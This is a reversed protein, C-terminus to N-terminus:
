RLVRHAARAAALGTQWAGNITGFYDLSCAEGAFFVREDLPESLRARLHACGPRAASYAGLAWPDSAWATEVTRRVDARFASGYMHTLEELAFAALAGTEELERALGDGFYALLVDQELPRTQYSATRASRDTGITFISEEPPLAGPTMEFYVKNAVGLPVGHCAELLQPARPTLRLRETALLPTPVTVIVAAARLEGRTTVVRVPNGSWDIESVAADLRVDLDRAAHAILDGLGGLVYWNRDSDAYRDYDVTSVQTSDVGMLWGMVADFTPRHRDNPVVDSVAIDRGARVAAAILEENRQFAALWATRYEPSTEVGAVRRQWMPSRQRVTFGHERAYATWPNVDASHLWACGMDLPVGLRSRDTWARGGVRTRAELLVPHLGLRRLEHAAAIGAAGAGVIVLPSDGNEASRFVPVTGMETANEASRFVPFTGTETETGLSSTM